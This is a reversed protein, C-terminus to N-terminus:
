KTCFQRSHSQSKITKLLKKVENINKFAPYKLILSKLLVISKKCNSFKYESKAYLYLIISNNKSGPFIRQFYRSYIIVKGYEKNKFLKSQVFLLTKEHIKHTKHKKSFLALYGNVLKWEKQVILAKIITFLDKPKLKTSVSIGAILTNELEVLEKARQKLVKSTETIDKQLSTKVKNNLNNFEKKFRNLNLEIIRLKNRVKQIFVVQKNRYNERATRVKILEKKAKLIAEGLSKEEQRRKKQMLSIKTIRLKMEDAEKRSVVFHYCGSSLFSLIFLIFIIRIKM